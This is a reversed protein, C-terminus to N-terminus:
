PQQLPTGTEVFHKLENQVGLMSSKFRSGFLPNFLRLYPALELRVDFVVVSKNPGKSVVTQRDDAYALFAPLNGTEFRLMMNEEDYEVIVEYATLVPSTTVRGVVPAHPAYVLGDPVESADIERAEQVVASWEDMAAFDHALVAWVAEAPADIETEIHVIAAEPGFIMGGTLLLVIAGIVYGFIKLVTKM